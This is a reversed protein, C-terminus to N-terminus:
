SAKRAATRARTRRGDARAGSASRARQTRAPAVARPEQEISRRLAELLSPVAQPKPVARAPAPRGARKANILELVAQQYRDEFERPDFKGSRRAIIDCAISLMEDPVKFEPIEDFYGKQDRVEYAYRLTTALLGRSRPELMLLRERRFMVARGIGAMKQKRMADRIVAFAEVGIQGDPILYYPTDLYIEDVEQRPVFKEIAITHTSEIEVKELEEDEIFVYEGKSIEYGRVRDEPEVPESSEADVVLNRTRDGTKRNMIHFAVRERTSTAPFLAVPCSVLSLKLYGKWSPRPAM